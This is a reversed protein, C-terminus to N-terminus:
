EIVQDARHLLSAPITLGLAKATRLNIVVEFKTPQETPLHGPNAGKLIRDVYHAARADLDRDDVSYSLLAGAETLWKLVGSAPLRHQAPSRWCPATSHPSPPRRCSSSRTPRLRPIQVLARALDAETRAKVIHMEVGARRACEEAPPLYSAMGPEDVNWLVVLRKMQPVAEKFLEVRKASTDAAADYTLGTINGGPRALSAVLGSGVPDAVGATVIAIAKASRKAAHAAASVSTVLVEVDRAAQAVLEDLRDLHGDAYTMQLVLNEGEVYNLRRLGARLAEVRADLARSFAVYGIRYVRGSQQAETAQTLLIGLMLTATPVLIGVRV